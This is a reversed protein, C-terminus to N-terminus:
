LKLEVAGVPRIRLETVAGPGFVAEMTDRYAPVDNLPIYAQITGAFGGGHVRCAGNGAIFDRTVTLALAIGQERPKHPAFINQLLEWSSDGSENVLALFRGFYGQKERPDVASNTKKLVNLMIDVRRNEYFFHRARLLARDGLVKRIEGARSLVTKWDLERLVAKGFFQAAAKMERPIGAYDETLDAHSGRTDVVCLAYGASAPDFAINTVQPDDLNRFDIAVAGGSACAAQDMLGSPKGFFVNEAKQGIQALELASRKGEGYLNDFISGILVEVTASSSLGSGPFVQSEANATFGRVATGRREFEAAIGRILAETTEKEEPVPALAGSAGRDQLDVVVDPYGASRFIVIGDKRPAAAAAEDLQISAALVKGQNHDTHNGGLETRGPATFLRLDGATEPFDRVPTDRSFGISGQAPKDAFKLMGEVLGAYRRKAQEVGNHGYLPVFLKEGEPSNVFNLLFKGTM